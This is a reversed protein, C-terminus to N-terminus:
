GGAVALMLYVEDGDQLPSGLDKTFAREGNVFFIVEPRLEGQKDYLWRRVDPFQRELDGLCWRRVDPFQRELDGLCELPTSAGVEVSEQDGTSKRLL